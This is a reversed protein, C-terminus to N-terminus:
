VGIIYVVSFVLIWVADVFHWYWTVMEFRESHEAKVAGFVLLVFVLSLMLLGIIVHAAHFGVLSYFTTGFLNTGITLGHDHILGYWEVATFTIFSAGLAITVALALGARVTEFKALNRVALGATISSSLLCATALYPFQLVDAPQPGHSSKGIYFLYSVLFIGFFMSEGFILCAMGVRGRNWQSGEMPQVLAESMNVAPQAVAESM